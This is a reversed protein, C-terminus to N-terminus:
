PLVAEPIKDLKRNTIRASIGVREAARVFLSPTLCNDELPLGYILAEPTRPDAFLKTLAALCGLLPDQDSRAIESLNVQWNGKNETKTRPTSKPTDRTNAAAAPKGIKLETDRTKKDGSKTVFLDDAAKIELPLPERSNESM